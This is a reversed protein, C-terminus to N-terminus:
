ATPPATRRWSIPPRRPGSLSPLPETRTTAATSPSGHVSPNAGETTEAGANHTSSRPRASNTPKTQPRRSRSQLQRAQRTPRIQHRTSSATTVAAWPPPTESRPRQNHGQADQTRDIFSLELPRGAIENVTQTAKDTLRKNLWDRARAHPAGIVFENQSYDLVSTDRVWTEFTTEPLQLKLERLVDSWIRDADNTPSAPTQDTTPPSAGNTNPTQDNDNCSNVESEEREWELRNIKDRYDHVETIFDSYFRSDGYDSPCPKPAPFQNPNALRYILAGPSEISGSRRDELYRCCTFFIRGPGYARTLPMIYDPDISIEPHQLMDRILNEAGPKM